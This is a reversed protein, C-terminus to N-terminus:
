RVVTVPWQAHRRLAQSVSGLLMGPFGGRGRAGVVLLQASGSAEILAPRPGAKVLRRHVPVDPYQEQKGSLAEALQRTAEDRLREEACVLARPDAPGSLARETRPNWAHFAILPTGRLSAEAFAFDVAPRGARSGDAGLLIDGTADKRGRVVMVPCHGHAALHVATSGLLLGAFGGLGRNGVVILEATRSQSELVARPEGAIVANATAVGPAATRARQVAEAMVREVGARLEGGVPGLPSPGSPPHMAPWLFAYVVRLGRGRLRAEGAATQVADLSSPSGDVGVVVQGSM